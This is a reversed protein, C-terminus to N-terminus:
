KHKKVKQLIHNRANKQYINLEIQIRKKLNDGISFNQPQKKIQEDYDFTGIPAIFAIKGKILDTEIDSSYNRIESTHYHYTPILSPDNYVIYDLDRFIRAIRNDCYVKGLNFNCKEREEKSLNFNSHIIWTDQSNAMIRLECNDLPTELFYERRNLAFMSKESSITTRRLNNINEDFFIDSNSLIYFACQNNQEILDFFNKYELRKHINIQIIKNNVEDHSLGLEENTYIRENLLYIKHLYKNEVNKKLVYKIEDYRKKDCHIFFQQVLYINDNSLDQLLKPKPSFEVFHSGAKPGFEM